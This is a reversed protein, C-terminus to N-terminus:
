KKNISILDLFHNLNITRIVPFDLQALHRFHNDNTVLYDCNGALAADAFKNDAPDEMILNWNYFINVVRVNPLSLLLEAINSAIVPSAKESIIETYETLIDNSIVLEFESALLKEFILRYKSKRPISVLLINTDLIVRM